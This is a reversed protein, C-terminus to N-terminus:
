YNVERILEDIEEDSLKEKLNILVYRLGPASILRTGDKDFVKFTEILEKEIETDKTKRAMLSLFEFFDITGHDYADIEDILNQLICEPPNSGLSRILTGLERTTITGDDDKDFLSFAEKFKAIEEDALQDYM